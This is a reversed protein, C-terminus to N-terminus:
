PFEEKHWGLPEDNLSVRTKISKIIKGQMQFFSEFLKVGFSWNGLIFLGFSFCYFARHSKSTGEKVQTSASLVM